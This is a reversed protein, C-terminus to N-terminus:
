ENKKDIVEHRIKHMKRRIEIKKEEDAHDYTKMEYWLWGIIHGIDNLFTREEIDLGKFFIDNCRFVTAVEQLRNKWDRLTNKNM